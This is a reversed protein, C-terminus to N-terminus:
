AKNQKLSQMQRQFWLNSPDHNGQPLNSSIFNNNNNKPRLLTWGEDVYQQYYSLVQQETKNTVNGWGYTGPFVYLTANPFKEKVSDTYQKIQSKQAADTPFGDNTGIGVQFFRLVDPYTNTDNNIQTRLWPLTKGHCNYYTYIKNSSFGGYQSTSSINNLVSVSSSGVIVNKAGSLNGSGNLGITVNSNSCGVAAKPTLTNQNQDSQDQQPTQGAIIKDGYKSFWIQIAKSHDLNNIKQSFGGDDKIKSELAPYRVGWNQIGIMGSSGWIMAVNGNYSRDETNTTTSLAPDALGVLKYSNNYNNFVSYGGSSYGFLYEKLQNTKIASNYNKIVAKLDSLQNQNGSLTGAAMVIYCENKIFQPIQDWQVKRSILSELGPWFYIIKDPSGSPINVYFKTTDPNTTTQTGFKEIKQGQQNLYLLVGNGENQNSQTGNVARNKYKQYAGKYFEWGMEPTIGYNGNLSLKFSAWENEMKKLMSKFNDLSQLAKELDDEKVGRSKVLNLGFEDQNEKTMPANDVNRLKKSLSNWTTGVFQYRGAASSNVIEGASNKEIYWSKDKCGTSLAFICQHGFETNVDWGNMIKYGLLVDYGNASRGITGEFYAITDLLTSELITM